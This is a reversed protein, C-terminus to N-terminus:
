FPVEDDIGDAEAAPAAAKDNGQVLIINGDFAGVIVETSTRKVGDKEYDRLELQGNVYVKSGVSGYTEIFQATKDNWCVVNFWSTKKGGAKSWSTTAVSMKAYKKNNHEKIELKGINGILTAAALM